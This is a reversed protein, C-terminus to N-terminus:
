FSVLTGEVRRFDYSAMVDDNVVPASSNRNHAYREDESVSDLSEVDPYLCQRGPNSKKISTRNVHSENPVKRRLHRRLVLVVLLAAMSALLAAILWVFDHRYLETLSSVESATSSNISQSQGLAPVNDLLFLIYMNWQRRLTPIVRSAMDDGKHLLIVGIEIQPIWLLPLSDDDPTSDMQTANPVFRVRPTNSKQALEQARLVIYDIDLGQMRLFVLTAKEFSEVEDGEERLTSEFQPFRLELIIPEIHPALSSKEPDQASPSITSPRELFDFTTGNGQATPYASLAQLISMFLFVKRGTTTAKM